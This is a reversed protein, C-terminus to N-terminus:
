NPEIKYNCEEIREPTWMPADPFKKILYAMNHKQKHWVKKYMWDQINQRHTDNGSKDLRYGRGYKKGKYLHAYWTKKNRVVRGGSLWAKFGIEQAEKWFSGYSEEDMLELFYYYSKEMFWCSGQFSMADDILRGKMEESDNRERWERGSFERGGWDKDDNPYTLFMYDIPYKPRQDTRMTWSEPELAERRPIQVWDSHSDHKLIEDFGHAFMCHGDTKMIYKGNAIDVGANICARMGKSESFHIYHVRKDDIIEEPLLWYGDLVAIVEIDGTAKELLDKITKHLFKEKRSPIVVSLLDSM